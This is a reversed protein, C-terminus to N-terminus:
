YTRESQHAKKAYGNNKANLIVFVNEDLYEGEIIAKHFLINNELHINLLLDGKFEKM